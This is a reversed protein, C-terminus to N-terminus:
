GAAARVSFLVRQKPDALGVNRGDRLASELEEKVLMTQSLESTVTPDEPSLMRQLELIEIQRQCAQAAHSYRGLRVLSTVANSIVLRERSLDGSRRLLAVSVQYLAAAKSSNGTLEYVNALNVAGRAMLQEDRAARAAKICLKLLARSDALNGAYCQEMATQLLATANASPHASHTAGPGLMADIRRRRKGPADEDDDSDDIILSTLASSTITDAEDSWSAQTEVQSLQQQRQQQQISTHM